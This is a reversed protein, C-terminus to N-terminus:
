EDIRKAQHVALAYAIVGIGIQIALNIIISSGITIFPTIMQTVPNAESVWRLSFVSVALIVVQQIPAILFFSIGFHLVFMIAIANASTRALVSSLLGISCNYLMAAALEIIFYIAIIVCAALSAVVLVAQLQPATAGVGVTASFIILIAVIFLLGSMAIRLVVALALPLSLWRLVGIVKAHVIEPINLTTIRLLSWNQTERERAIVTSTGISSLLWIGFMLFGHLMWLTVSLIAGISFLWEGASNAEILIPTMSLGCLGSCMLPLLLFIIWVWSWQRSRKKWLATERQVIPHDNSAWSPLM